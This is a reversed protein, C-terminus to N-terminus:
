RYIIKNLIADATESDTLMKIIEASFDIATGLGRSTIINGDVAVSATSVRQIVAKM